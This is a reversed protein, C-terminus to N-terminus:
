QATLIDDRVYLLVYPTKIKADNKMKTELNIQSIPTIHDDDCIYWQSDGPQDNGNGQTPKIKIQCCQLADCVFGPQPNKESSRVYAIYHGSNATLGLHVIVSMLTYRHISTGVREISEMCDMCFCDMYFPVPTAIPIKMMQNDFRGLHVILIRSLKQYSSTQKM